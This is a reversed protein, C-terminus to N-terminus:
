TAVSRGRYKKKGLGRWGDREQTPSSVSDLQLVPLLYQAQTSAEEEKKKRLVLAGSSIKVAAKGPATDAETHPPRGLDLVVTNPHPYTRVNQFGTRSLKNAKM